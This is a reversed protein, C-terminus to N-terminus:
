AHQFCSEAQLANSADQMLLLEGKLRYWAPELVAYGTRSALDLGEALATLAQDPQGADGYAEALLALCGPQWLGTGTAHTTAFGEHIQAIGEEVQGQKALAWGLLPVAAAERLIFGHERSLAILAEAQEQTAQLERRFQYLQAACHFACALSFPHSL